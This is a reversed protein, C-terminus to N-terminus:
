EKISEKSNLLMNPYIRMMRVNLFMGNKIDYKLKLRPKSDLWLNLFSAIDQILQTMGTNSAIDIISLSNELM